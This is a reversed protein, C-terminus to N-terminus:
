GDGDLRPCAKSMSPYAERGLEDGGTAETAETAESRRRVQDITRVRGTAPRTNWSWPHCCHHCCQGRQGRRGEPRLVGIDSRVFGRYLRGWFGRHRVRCSSPFPSSFIIQVSCTFERTGGHSRCSPPCTFPVTIQIGVSVESPVQVRRRRYM